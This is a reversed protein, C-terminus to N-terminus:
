AIRMRRPQEASMAAWHALAVAEALTAGSGRFGFGGNTGIPRKTISEMAETLERQGFHTLEGSRIADLLMSCATSMEQAKPRKVLLRPVRERELDEALKQANGIGDIAVTYGADTARVAADLVWGMGGEISDTEVLEVHPAGQEPRVCAAITASAGSPDFKIGFATVGDSPPCDTRLSEWVDARVLADAAQSPWWGLREVAFGLRTMTDREDRVTDESIRRGMAPNTAYWVSVDDVDVEDLTKGTAAWELWWMSTAGSHARDHMTRFVDGAAGDGPPTGLYIKQPQGGGDSLESAASVTPLVADQQASTLEQAEDFVVINYTGGRGGSNTRTQFEILGGNRFYIGEYGGAKYIYDLEAAFDAHSEVFDCMEKFMARVTRGHHASFLCSKGHLAAQEICYDRACFSKGNQRPKSIGLSKAAYGGDEDRAYLLEMEHKQSGYYNRGYAEFMEVVDAGFSHHYEGVLEFTPAQGGLRRPLRGGLGHM